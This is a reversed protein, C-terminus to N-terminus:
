EKYDVWGKKRDWLLHKLPEYSDVDGWVIVEYSERNRQITYKNTNKSLVDSSLLEEFAIDGCKRMIEESSLLTDVIEDINGEMIGKCDALYWANSASSFGLLGVLALEGLKKMKIMLYLKM